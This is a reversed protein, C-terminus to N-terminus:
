LLVELYKRVKKEVHLIKAYKLLLNINKRKSLVYKKMAFQITQLDGTNGRLVDCLSRELNYVRVINGSPTKVSTVGLDYYEDIVRTVNVNENKLSHTNYKSPFTLNLSLPVRESYGWLYLATEHSYIGRSYKQQITYYDDEWEDALMYIGRKCKVLDGNEVMDRLISRHVGCKTVFKSTIFGNDVNSIVWERDKANM